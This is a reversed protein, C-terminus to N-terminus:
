GRDIWDELAPAAIEGTGREVVVFRSYVAVSAIVRSPTGTAEVLHVVLDTLPRKGSFAERIEALYAWAWDEIVYLGGPRLLPFLAEFSAKTPAYLHSCDDVVLDLQGSFEASAIRRLGAQDAQDVRWYTSVRDERGQRWRTFAQTDERDAVDIAVHKRPRFVEYWLAVSGGGFIGLEFVHQPRFGPRMALMEAYQEVLSRPKYLVLETSDDIRAEELRFTLRGLSVTGDGWDLTRLTAAPSRRWM